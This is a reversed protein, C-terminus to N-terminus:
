KGNDLWRTIYKMKQNIEFSDFAYLEGKQWSTSNVIWQITNITDTLFNIYQTPISISKNFDERKNELKLTRLGGLMNYGLNIWCECFGKIYTREMPNWQPVALCLDNIKSLELGMNNKDKCIARVVCDRCPINFRLFELSM